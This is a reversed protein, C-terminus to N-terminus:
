KTKEIEIEICTQLFEQMKQTYHIYAQGDEPSDMAIEPLSFLNPAFVISLARPSMKNSSSFKSVEVNLDLLWMFISKRPESITDLLALAKGKDGKPADRVKDKDLEDLLRHPLCRLWVKILNSLCHIDDCSTFTGNDLQEKRFASEEADPAIRFIGEVKWAEHKSLYERMFVLIQPIKSKCGEVPVCDLMGPDLGFQKNILPQWEEPLGEFKRTEANYTVHHLHQVEKAASIKRGLASTAADTHTNESQDKKPEHITMQGVALHVHKTVDEAVPKPALAEGASAGSARRPNKDPIVPANGASTKIVKLVNEKFNESDKYAGERKYFGFGWQINDEDVFKHFDDSKKKYTCYPTVNANIVVDYGVVTWGVIRYTNDYVDRYLHIQAWGQSKVKWEQNQLTYVVCYANCVSVESTDADEEEPLPGGEGAVVFGTDKNIVSMTKNNNYAGRQVTKKKLKM